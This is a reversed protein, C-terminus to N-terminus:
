AFDNFMEEMAPQGMNATGNASPGPTHHNQPRHFGPAEGYGWPSAAVFGLPTDDGPITEPELRVTIRQPGWNAKYVRLVPMKETEDDQSGREPRGSGSIKRSYEGMTLVGRVHDTWAGTGSVMGPHFPDGGTRSTKTSHAILLNGARHKGAESSLADLFTMVQTPSNAEGVFATLAPDIIILIPKAAGVLSWFHHWGALKGPVTNYSARDGVPGYLPWGRMSVVAIRKLADAASRGKRTSDTDWLDALKRLKWKVVSTPDEYTAYVVNGGFGHFLEGELEMPEHLNDNAVAVSLAISVALTSKGAGGAASLVCTEGESLVAGKMKACGLIPKPFEAMGEHAWELAPPPQPEHAEPDDDREIDELIQRAEFPNARIWDIADPPVDAGEFANHNTM